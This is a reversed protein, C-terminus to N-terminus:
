AFAKNTAVSTVNMNDMESQIVDYPERQHDISKNWRACVVHIFDGSKTTLKFAGTQMPCCRIRTPKNRRKNECKQCFWEGDPVQDVGYCDKHVPINCDEGDCFVIPNKKTSRDGECITCADDDIAM